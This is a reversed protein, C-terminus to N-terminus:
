PERSIKVEVMCQKTAIQCWKWLAVIVVHLPAQITSKALFRTLYNKVEYCVDNCGHGLGLGLKRVYIASKCDKRPFPMIFAGTSVIKLESPVFLRTRGPHVFESSFHLSSFDREWQVIIRTSSFSSLTQTGQELISEVSNAYAVIFRLNHYIYFYTIHSIESFLFVFMENKKSPNM